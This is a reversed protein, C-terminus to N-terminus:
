VRYDFTEDSVNGMGGEPSNYTQPSSVESNPDCREKHVDSNDENQDEYPGDNM